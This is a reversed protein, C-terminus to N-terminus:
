RLSVHLAGTQSRRGRKTPPQMANATATELACLSALTRKLEAMADSWRVSGDKSNTVLFYQVKLADHDRTCVEVLERTKRAAERIDVYRSNRGAANSEITIATHLAFNVWAITEIDSWVNSEIAKRAEKSEFQKARAEHLIAFLTERHRVFQRM